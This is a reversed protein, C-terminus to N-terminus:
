FTCGYASVATKMQDSSSKCMAEMSPKTQPNKALDTWSKRMQDIQGQFMSKQAEPVKGSICAEYKTLFDDCAPIGIPDAAHAAFASFSVTAAVLANRFFM